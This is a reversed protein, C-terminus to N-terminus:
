KMRGEGASIMCDSMRDSWSSVRSSIVSYEDDYGNRQPIFFVFLSPFVGIHGNRHRGNKFSKVYMKTETSINRRKRQSRTRTHLPPARRHLLLLSFFSPIHCTKRKKVTECSHLRNEFFCSTVGLYFVWCACYIRWVEECANLLFFWWFGFRCVFALYWLPFYASIKWLSVARFFYATLM